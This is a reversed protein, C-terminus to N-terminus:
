RGSELDRVRATLEDLRRRCETEANRAAAADTRAAAADARAATADARAADASAQTAALVREWGGDQKWLTRFVFALVTAGIGLSINQPTAVSDILGGGDAPTSM